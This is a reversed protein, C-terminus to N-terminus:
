DDNANHIVLDYVHGIFKGHNEVWLGVSLQSIGGAYTRLGDALTKSSSNGSFVFLLHAVSQPTIGHKLQADDIADALETNGAEALRESIFALAHASPLGNDKDLAARAETIVRAQLRSRSKSETKLFLLRGNSPDRRIGIVDDGRMAMNRHDKWRLRKIPALYATHQSIYETALIEGLDGSRITKTTPLKERIFAAAKPKGLRELIRAIRDEAAYHGPIIAALWESVELLKAARGKMVRVVHSAVTSQKIECWEVFSLM